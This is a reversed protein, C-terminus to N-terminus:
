DRSTPRTCLPRYRAPDLKALETDIEVTITGFFNVNESHAPSTHALLGDDVARAEARM